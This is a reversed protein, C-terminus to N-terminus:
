RRRGQLTEFQRWRRRHRWGCRAQSRLDSRARQEAAAVEDGWGSAAFTLLTQFDAIGCGDDAVTLMRTADDYDIRVHTAGARRANQILEQLVAFAHAFAFRLQRRLSVPDIKLRVDAPQTTHRTIM